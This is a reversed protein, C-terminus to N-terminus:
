PRFSGPLIMFFSGDEGKKGGVSDKCHTVSYPNRHRLFSSYISRDLNRYRGGVQVLLLIRSHIGKDRDRRVTPDTMSDNQTRDRSLLPYVTDSVPRVRSTYM